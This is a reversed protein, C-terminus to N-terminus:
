KQNQKSRFMGKCGIQSNVWGTTYLKAIIITLVEKSSYNIVTSSKIPCRNDGDAPPDERYRPRENRLSSAKLSRKPPTM